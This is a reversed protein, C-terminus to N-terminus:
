QNQRWFTLPWPWPAHNNSFPKRVIVSETILRHDHFKMCKSGMFKNPDTPSRYQKLLVKLISKYTAGIHQGEQQTMHNIQRSNKYHRNTYLLSYWVLPYSMLKNTRLLWGKIQRTQQNRYHGPPVHQNHALQRPELAKLRFISRRGEHRLLQYRISVAM